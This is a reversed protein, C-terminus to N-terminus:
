SIKHYQGWLQFKNPMTWPFTTIKLFNAIQKCKRIIVAYSQQSLYAFNPGKAFMDTNNELLNFKLLSKWKKKTWHESQDASLIKNRLIQGFHCKKYGKPSLDNCNFFFVFSKQQWRNECFICVMSDTYAWIM